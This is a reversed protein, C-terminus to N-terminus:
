ITNRRKDMNSPTSFILVSPSLKLNQGDASSSITEAADFWSIKIPGHPGPGLHRLLQDRLRLATQKAKSREESNYVVIQLEQESAHNFVDALLEMEKQSAAPASQVLDTVKLVLRYMGIRYTRFSFDGLQHLHEVARLAWKGTRNTELFNKFAEKERTEEDLRQYALGSNYLAEPLQPEHQLVRQYYDLAKNYKGNELFNHGLNLLSPVYDPHEQVVKFYSQRELDEKGTSWYAVAQWHVYEAREPELAVARHFFALAAERQDAALLGRGILYNAEANNTFPSVAIAQSGAAGASQREKMVGGWFAICVVLTVAVLGVPSFHLNPQFFWNKLRHYPNPRPTYVRQMIQQKLWAPAEQERTQRLLEAIKKDDDQINNM